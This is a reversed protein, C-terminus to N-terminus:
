VKDFSNSYEELTIENIFNMIDFGFEDCYLNLFEVSTNYGNRVTDEKYRISKDCFDEFCASDASTDDMFLDPNMNSLLRGLETNQTKDFRSDLLNFLAIYAKRTFKNNM